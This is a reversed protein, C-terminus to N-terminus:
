SLFSQGISIFYFSGAVNFHSLSHDTCLVLPPLLKPPNTSSFVPQWKIHVSLFHHENLSDHWALVLEHFAKFLTFPNPTKHKGCHAIIFTNMHCFHFSNATSHLIYQLLVHPFPQNTLLSSFYTILSSALNILLLYRPFSSM